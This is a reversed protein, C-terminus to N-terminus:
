AGLSRERLALRKSTSSNPRQVSCVYYEAGVGRLRKAFEVGDARVWTKALCETDCGRDGIEKNNEAHVIATTM